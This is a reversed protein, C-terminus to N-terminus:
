VMWENVDLPVNRDARGRPIPGGHFQQDHSARFRRVVRLPSALGRALSALATVFTLVTTPAM